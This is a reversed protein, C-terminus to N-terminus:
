RVGPRRRAPPLEIVGDDRRRFQQIAWIVVATAGAEDLNGILPANDPILELIGATPNLLYLIGVVLGMVAGIRRTTRNNM